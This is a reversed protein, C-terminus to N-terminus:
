SLNNKVVVESPLAGVVNAAKEKLFHHYPKWPRVAEFHGEVGMEAWDNLETEIYTRASKPMAGLSNGTLYICTQGHLKPIHFRDRYNALPDNQDMQQAFARSAEFNIPM